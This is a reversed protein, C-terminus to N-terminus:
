VAAEKMGPPVAGTGSAPVGSRRAKNFVEMCTMAASAAWIAFSFAGFAVDAQAAHCVDGRCFLLGSLFAALAAFGAFYFLANALDFPAAIYAKPIRPLFRPLVEICALSVFSWVAAFVLFNVQSPSSFTTTTNYWNAVFGSLILVLLAFVGQTARIILMLPFSM